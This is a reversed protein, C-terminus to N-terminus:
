TVAGNSRVPRMASPSHGYHTRFARSFNGPDTYGLSLAIETMTLGTERILMAARRMRARQLVDRYTTGVLQLQRQLSRTSSGTLRAVTEIDASGDLLRLQVMAEITDLATACESDIASALIECSTIRPQRVLGAHAGLRGSRIVTDPLEVSVGARAFFWDCALVEQLRPGQGDDAYPVGVRRPLWDQGAYERVLSIFAPLVHDAHHRDQVAGVGPIAYRWIWNPGSKQLLFSAGPQHTAIAIQLRKLAHFLTPAQCAYTAMMGYPRHGMDLGVRLGFCRDGCAAGAREFLEIMSKLPIRTDLHDPLSVPLGTESFVREVRGFGVLDELLQPLRGMGKALTLEVQRNSM